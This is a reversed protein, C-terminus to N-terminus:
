GLKAKISMPFALSGGGTNSWEYMASSWYTREPDKLPQPEEIVTYNESILFEKIKGINVRPEVITLVGGKKLVRKLDRLLAQYKERIIKDGVATKGSSDNISEMLCNINAENVSEPALPINSNVYSGWRIIHLNPPPRRIKPWPDLILFNDNPRKRAEKVFYEGRGGAIDIAVTQNSETM